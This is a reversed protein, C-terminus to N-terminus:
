LPYAKFLNLVTRLRSTCGDYLEFSAGLGGKQFASENTDNLCNDPERREQKHVIVELFIVFHSKKELFM